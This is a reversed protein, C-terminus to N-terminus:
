NSQEILKKQRVFHKQHPKNKERLNEIECLWVFYIRNLYIYSYFFLVIIIM